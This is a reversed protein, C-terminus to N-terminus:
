LVIGKLKILQQNENRVTQLEAHMEELVEKLQATEQQAVVLQQQRDSLQREMEQRGQLLNQVETYLAEEQLIFWLRLTACHVAVLAPTSPVWLLIGLQSYKVKAALIQAQEALGENLQAVSSSLPTM